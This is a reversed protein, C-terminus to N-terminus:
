GARQSLITATIEDALGASSSKLTDRAAVVETSIQEKATKLSEEARHQAETIQAAQDNLWLKRTEEQSRYVEARAERFRDEYEQQKRDAAALGEAAANRAGETLEERQKLVKSLPAFLVARFYFHLLLLLCITPIAKLLIVGLAQLTQEM